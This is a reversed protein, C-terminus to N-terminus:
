SKSIKFSLDVDSIFSNQVNEHIRIFDLKEKNRKDEILSLVGRINFDM